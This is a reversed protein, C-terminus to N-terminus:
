FFDGEDKKKRWGNKLGLNKDLNSESFENISWDPIGGGERREKHDGEGKDNDKESVLLARWWRSFLVGSQFPM